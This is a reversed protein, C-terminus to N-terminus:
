RPALRRAIDEAFGLVNAGLRRANKMRLMPVVLLLLLRPSRSRSPTEVRGAVSSLYTEPGSGAVDCPARYSRGSGLSAGRPPARM